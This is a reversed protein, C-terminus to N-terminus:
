LPAGVVMIEGRYFALDQIFKNREDNDMLIVILTNLADPRLYPGLAWERGPEDLKVVGLAQGNILVKIADDVGGVSLRYQDLDEDAPLMFDALVYTFTAEDFRILESDAYYHLNVMPHGLEPARELVYERMAAFAEVPDSSTILGNQGSPEYWFGDEDGHHTVAYDPEDTPIREGEDLIHWGYSFTGRDPPEADGDSDPSGDDDGSDDSVEAGTDSNVTNYPFGPKVGYDLCGVVGLFVSARFGM